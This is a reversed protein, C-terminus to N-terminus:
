QGARTPFGYARRCASVFMRKADSMTKDERRDCYDIKDFLMKRAEGLVENEPFLGDGNNKVRDLDLQVLYSILRVFTRQEPAMLPGLKAEIAEMLRVGKLELEKSIANANANPNLRIESKQNVLIPSGGKSGAAKRITSLEADRKIRPVYFTGDEEQRLLGRELCEDFGLAVQRRNGSLSDVLQRRTSSSKADRFVGRQECNASQCILDIWVAKCAMSCVKLRDDALWDKYYFLIHPQQSM